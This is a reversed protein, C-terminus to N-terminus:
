RDLQRRFLRAWHATRDLYATQAAAGRKGWAGDYSLYAGTGRPPAAAAEIQTGEQWENYSTITVLDARARIAAKWMSDYTKGARRPKTRAEGTARRADFGPGVSPACLLKKARAQSCLRAFKDGGWTLVDYTYFGSFGGAAAAGVLHTQAFTELGRSRLTENAAAWDTPPVTFPQFVFFRTIGHAERLRLADAVTSEVTRDGYPELHVAVDLGRRSAAAVVALLRRDEVTGAGWWSVVVEDVGARSLERMQADLVAASSSSYPGRAPYFSAAIDDPPSYGSQAWHEYDGDAAPTGFWPYYFVSVSAAAVQAALLALAAIGAGLCARTLAV